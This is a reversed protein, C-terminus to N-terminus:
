LDDRTPVFFKDPGRPRSEPVAIQEDRGKIDRQPQRPEWESKHVIWGQWTKMSESAKIKQGSRDSIMNWDGLVAKNKRNQSRRRGKNGSGGRSAASRRNRRM